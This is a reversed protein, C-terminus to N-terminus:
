VVSSSYPFGLLDSPEQSPQQLWWASFSPKFGPARVIFHWLQLRAVCAAPSASPSQVSQKFAQVRRQKVFRAMQLNVGFFDPSVGGHRGKPIPPQASRKVETEITAATGTQAPTLANRGRCQLQQTALSEYKWGCRLISRVPILMMLCMRSLLQLPMWLNLALFLSLNEGCWSLSGLTVEESLRLCCIMTRFGVSQVEVNVM